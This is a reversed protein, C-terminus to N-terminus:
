PRRQQIRRERAAHERRRRIREDGHKGAGVAGGRHGAAPGRAQGDPRRDPHLGPHRVGVAGGAEAGGVGDGRALLTRVNMQNGYIGIKPGLFLGFRDTVWYNAYTGVQAGYLNNVTRFSLAAQDAGGNGGWTAGGALGAYRLHEDFRFFRFGAFPVVTWRMFNFTGFYLNGEFNDARDSRAIRQSASGDFFDSAPDGGITVGTLDMTTSLEDTPSNVQAFGDMQGLGWYTFGFGPGPGCAGCHMYGLTVQWGGAWDAGANQTNLVNAGTGTDVTTTFANPRNRGMALGGLSGFWGGGTAGCAPTECWESEVSQQFESPGNSGDIVEESERSGEPASTAFVSGYPSVPGGPLNYSATVVGPSPFTAPGGQAAARPALWGLSALMVMPAM